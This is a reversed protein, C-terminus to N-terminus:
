LKIESFIKKYKNQNNNIDSIIEKIVEANKMHSKPDTKYYTSIKIEDINESYWSSITKCCYVFVDFEIDDQELGIKLKNCPTAINPENDYLKISEIISILNLKTVEFKKM